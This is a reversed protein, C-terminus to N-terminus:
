NVSRFIMVAGVSHGMLGALLVMLWLEVLHENIFIFVPSRFVFASLVAIAGLGVLLYGGIETSGM